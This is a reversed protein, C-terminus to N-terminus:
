RASFSALNLHALIYDHLIEYFKYQDEILLNNIVYTAGHANCGLTLHWHLITVM